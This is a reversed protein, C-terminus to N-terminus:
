DHRHAHQKQFLNPISHSRTIKPSNAHDDNNYEYVQIIDVDFMKEVRDFNYILGPHTEKNWVTLKWSSPDETCSYGDPLHDKDYLPINEPLHKWVGVGYVHDFFDNVYKISALRAEKYTVYRNKLVFNLMKIDNHAIHLAEPSNFHVFVCFYNM